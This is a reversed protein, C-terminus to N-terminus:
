PRVCAFIRMYSQSAMASFLDELRSTGLHTVVAKVADARPRRFSAVFESVTVKTGACAPESHCPYLPCAAPVRRGSKVWLPRLPVDQISKCKIWCLTRAPPSSYRTRASLSAGPLLLLYHRVSNQTRLAVTLSRAGAKSQRPVPWRDIAPMLM